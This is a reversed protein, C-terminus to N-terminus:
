FLLTVVLRARGLTLWDSTTRTTTTTTTERASSRIYSAEWNAGLALHRNAMWMGGVNAFAGSNNIRVSTEGAPAFDSAAREQRDRRVGGTVGVTFYQRVRPAVERFWRLGLRADVNRSTSSFTEDRESTNSGGSGDLVLALRPSRFWLVGLSQAETGATFEAGWQGRRFGLSDAAQQAHLPRALVIALAVVTGIKWRM